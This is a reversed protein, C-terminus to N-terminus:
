SAVERSASATQGASAVRGRRRPALPGLQRLRETFERCCQAFQPGMGASNFYLEVREPALGIGQLIEKVRRIRSIAWLNGSMYHCDGPLCGSVMVGDAGYELAQLVHLINVRGTCPVRIIHINTPYQLRMSGALDAAAYSCWQCCFVMIKPEFPADM